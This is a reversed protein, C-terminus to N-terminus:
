LDARGGVAGQTEWFPSRQNIRTAMAYGKKNAPQSCDVTARDIMLQYPDVIDHRRDRRDNTMFQRSIGRLVGDVKQWGQQVCRPRYALVQHVMGAATYERDAITIPLQDSIALSFGHEQEIDTVIESFCIAQVVLVRFDDFAKGVFQFLLAM